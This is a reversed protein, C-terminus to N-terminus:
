GKREEDDQAALLADKNQLSVRAHLPASSWALAPPAEDRLARALLRSAVEGLSGGDRDRRRKLADLVAPDLDLTTRM